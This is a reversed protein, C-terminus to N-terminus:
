HSPPGVVPDGPRFPWTKRRDSHLLRDEYEANAYDVPLFYVDPGGVLILRLREGQRTLANDCSTRQGVAFFAQGPGRLVRYARVLAPQHRQLPRVIEGDVVASAQSLLLRAQRRKEPISPERSTLVACARAAAPLAAEMACLLALVILPRIM